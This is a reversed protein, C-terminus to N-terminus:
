MGNLTEFTIEQSGYTKNNSTYGVAMVKYKTLPKLSRLIIQTSEIRKYKWEKKGNLAPKYLVIYNEIPNADAAPQLTLSVERDTISNDVISVALIPM